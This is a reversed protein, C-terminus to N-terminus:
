NGRYVVREGYIERSTISLNNTQGSSPLGLNIYYALGYETNCLEEDNGGYDYRGFRKSYEELRATDTSSLDFMVPAYKRKGFPGAGDGSEIVANPDTPDPKLAGWVDTRNNVIYAFSSGTSAFPLAPAWEPLRAGFNVERVLIPSNWVADPDLDGHDETSYAGFLTVLYYLMDAFNGGGDEWSKKYLYEDNAAIEVFAEGNWFTKGLEPYPTQEANASDADYFEVGDLGYYFCFDRCERAFLQPQGKTLSGVSVGDRGGTIGVLVKIGKDRLPKIHTKWDKVIALLPSSYELRPNYKGSKIEAGSIVVYDFYATGSNELAYNGVSELLSAANPQGTDIFVATRITAGSNKPSKDPPQPIYLLEEGVSGSCAALFAVLVFVQFLRALLKGSM